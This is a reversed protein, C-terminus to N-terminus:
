MGFPIKRGSRLAPRGGCRLRATEGLGGNAHRASNPALAQAFTYEVVAIKGVDAVIGELQAAARLAISDASTIKAIEAGSTELNTFGAETIVGGLLRGGILDAITVNVVAALHKVARNPNPQALGRVILERVIEDVIEIIGANGDAPGPSIAARKSRIIKDGEIMDVVDADFGIAVTGNQAVHAANISQAFM